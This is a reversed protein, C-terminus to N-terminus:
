KLSALLAALGNRTEVPCQRSLAQVTSGDKATDKTSDKPADSPADKPTDGTAAATPTAKSAKKAKTATVPAPDAVAAPATLSKAGKSKSATVAQPAASVTGTSAATAAAKAATKAAAPTAALGLLSLPAAILSGAWNIENFVFGLAAGVVSNVMNFAATFPDRLLAVTYAINAVISNTVTEVATAAFGIQPALVGVLPIASVISAVANLGNNILDRPITYLNWVGEGVLFFADGISAAPVPGGPATTPPVATVTNKASAAAAPTQELASLLRVAFARAPADSSVTVTHATSAMPVSPSVAPLAIATAALAAVGVAAHSRISAGM